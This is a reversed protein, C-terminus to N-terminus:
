QLPRATSAERRKILGRKEFTASLRRRARFLNSKASGITLGLTSAAQAIPAEDLVSYQLIMRHARPQRLLARHLLTVFQQQMAQEEPSRRIDPIDWHSERGQGDPTGDLSLFYVNKGKRKVSLAANNLIATLWTGFHCENRFKHLHVFARLMAEQVLDEADEHNRTFRRAARYLAARHRVLLEGMAGPAGAQAAAVLDDQESRGRSQGARDLDHRSQDTTIPEHVM